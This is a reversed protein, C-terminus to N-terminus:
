KASVEITKSSKFFGYGYSVELVTPQEPLRIIGVFYFSDQNEEQLIVKEIKNSNLEKVIVQATEIKDYDFNLPAKLKIGITEGAKAKVIECKFNDDMIEIAVDDASSYALSSNWCANFAVWGETYGKDAKPNFPYAAEKPAGDIRGEVKELMGYGGIHYDFWGLKCGEIDKVANYFFSRGYPNRGFMDDIGAIGIAKLRNIKTEDKLLRVVAYCIAMIGAASGPENMPTKMCAAGTWIDAEDGASIASAMRMDWMNESRAIMKDAWREIESLLKPPCTNPYKEAFFTLNEMTIHESMRQGKSYEPATIDINNLIWECNRYAADFYEKGDGLGDRRVIEYLLLNPQISHAPPLSGKIGGILTQVSFLDNNEGPIDYSKYTSVPDGWIKITFDRIKKYFDESVYESIYPYIYLFYPLQEKVLMHLKYGHNTGQDYYREAGFKMLWVIDPENQVRMEPYECTSLNTIGYPMREYAWPNAMYQFVLSNLEFSFQASDRWAYTVADEINGWNFTDSRSQDMFALAPKISVRQMWNKAITFNYSVSGNCEIYFDKKAIPDLNTFDAIGKEVTGTFVTEKTSADIVSFVTGDGVNVVTARKSKGIDYGTQNVFIFTETIEERVKSSAVPDADATTSELRMATAYTKGNESVVSINLSVATGSAATITALKIWEDRNKGQEFEKTWTGKLSNITCKVKIVDTVGSAAWIYIDYNGDQDAYERWSATAGIESSIRTIGNEYGIQEGQSWSGSEMYNRDTATIIKSM